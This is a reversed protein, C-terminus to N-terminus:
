GCWTLTFQVADEQNKFWWVRHFQMEASGGSAWMTGREGCNADCWDSVQDWHDFSRPRFHVHYTLVEFTDPNIYAVTLNLQTTNTM